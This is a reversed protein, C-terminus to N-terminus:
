EVVIEQEPFITKYETSTELAHDNILNLHFINKSLLPWPNLERFCIPYFMYSNHLQKGKYLTYQKAPVPFEQYM